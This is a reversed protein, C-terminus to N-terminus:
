NGKLLDKLGAFPNHTVPADAFTYRASDREGGCVRRGQKQGSQLVAGQKYSITQGGIDREDVFQSAINEAWGVPASVLMWHESGSGCGTMAESLKRAEVGCEMYFSPWRKGGSGPSYQQVLVLEREPEGDCPVLVTAGDGALAVHVTELVGEQVSSCALLGPNHRVLGSRPRFAVLGGEVAIGQTVERGRLTLATHCTKKM